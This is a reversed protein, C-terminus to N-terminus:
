VTKKTLTALKNRGQKAFNIAKSAENLKLKKQKLDFFIKIFLWIYHHKPFIQRYFAGHSFYNDQVSNKSISSLSVHQVITKNVFIIRKNERKLDMLFLPEDGLSFIGNIGFREDFKFVATSINETKLSIEITGCNLISLITIPDQVAKPYPKLLETDSMQAQFLIVEAGSYKNHADIIIKCTEPLYDVDDDTFIVIKKTANQLAMNRSKAVGTEYSNIIRINEFESKLENGKQTQNIILIHIEEIYFHKFIPVLFDLSGKAQTSILFEIDSFSYKDEL